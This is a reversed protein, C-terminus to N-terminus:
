SERRHDGGSGEGAQRWLGGAPLFGFVISDKENYSIKEKEIKSAFNCLFESIGFNMLMNTYLVM